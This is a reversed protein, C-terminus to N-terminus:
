SRVLFCNFPLYNYTLTILTLFRVLGVFSFMRLHEVQFSNSDVVFPILLTSSSLNTGTRGLTLCGLFGPMKTFWVVVKTNMIWWLNPLSNPVGIRDQGRNNLSGSQFSLM